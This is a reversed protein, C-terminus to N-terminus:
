VIKKRTKMTFYFIVIMLIFIGIGGFIILNIKNIGTINTNKKIVVVKKNIKTIIKTKNLLNKTLKLSNSDAGYKSLESFTVQDTYAWIAHQGILNQMYSSEIQTALKQLNADAMKGYTFGTQINPPYKHMESCMAYLSAAYESNPFLPIIAEKTVMMIQFASDIPILLRGTEIKLYILSDIKSKLIVAMCKGYHVGEKDIFEEFGRPDYSGIFKFDFYNKEIGELFSIENSKKVKTTNNKTAEDHKLVNEKVKFNNIKGKKNSVIYWGAIFLIVIIILAIAYKIIQSFKSTRNISAAPSYQDVILSAQGLVKTGPHIITEKEIFKDLTGFEGKFGEREIRSIAAKIEIESLKFKEEEDILKFNKKFFARETLSIAYDIDKEFSMKGSIEELINKFYKNNIRLLKEIEINSIGQYYTQALTTYYDFQLEKLEDLLNIADIESAVKELSQNNLLGDEIVQIEQLFENLIGLRLNQKIEENQSLFYHRFIKLHEITIKSM